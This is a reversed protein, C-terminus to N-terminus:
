VKVGNFVYSINVSGVYYGGSKTTYSQFFAKAKITLTGSIKTTKGVKIEKGTLTWTGAELNLPLNSRALVDNKIVALLARVAAADPVGTFATKNARWLGPLMFAPSSLNFSKINDVSAFSALAPYAKKQVTISKGKVIGDVRMLGSLQWDGVVDALVAPSPILSLLALVAMLNLKKM